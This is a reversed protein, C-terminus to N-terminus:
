NTLWENNSFETLEKFTKSVSQLICSKCINEATRDAANRFNPHSTKCHLGKKIRDCKWCSLESETAQAQDM